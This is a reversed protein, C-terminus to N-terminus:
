VTRDRERATASSVVATLDRLAVPFAGVSETLVKITTDKQADSKTHERWLAVVALSAAIALAGPGALLTWDM